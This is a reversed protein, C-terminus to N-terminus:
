IEGSMGKLSITDCFLLLIAGTCGNLPRYTCTRALEPLFNTSTTTYGFILFQNMWDYFYSTAEQYCFTSL